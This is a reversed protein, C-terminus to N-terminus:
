AGETNANTEKPALDRSTTNRPDPGGQQPATGSAQENLQPGQEGTPNPLGKPQMMQAIVAHKNAAKMVWDDVGPTLLGKEKM